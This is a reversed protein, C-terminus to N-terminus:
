ELSDMLKPQKTLVSGEIYTCDNLNMEVLPGSTNDRNKKYFRM